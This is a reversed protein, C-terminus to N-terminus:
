SWPGFCTDVTIKSTQRHVSLRLLHPLNRKWWVGCRGVCLSLDGNFVEVPYVWAADCREGVCVSSRSGESCDKQLVSWLVPLVAGCYHCFCRTVGDRHVLHERACRDVSRLDRVGPEYGNLAVQYSAHIGDETLSGVGAPRRVQLHLRADQVIQGDVDRVLHAVCVPDLAM